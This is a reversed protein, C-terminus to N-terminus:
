SYINTIKKINLFKLLNRNLIYDYLKEMEGEDM